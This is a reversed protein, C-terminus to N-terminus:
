DADLVWGDFKYGARVLSTKYSAADVLKSGVQLRDPGLSAPVSPQDATAHLDYAVEGWVSRWAGFLRVTDGAGIMDATVVDVDFDWALAPDAQDLVQATKYWGVFAYGVLSPVVVQATVAEGILGVTDPPGTVVGPADVVFAVTLSKKTFLAEVEVDGTPVTLEAAASATDDLMGDDGGSVVRWRDFGYGVEPTATLAARAGEEYFEGDAGASGCVGSVVTVRAWAGVYAGLPSSQNGAADGGVVWVM